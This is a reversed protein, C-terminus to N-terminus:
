CTVSNTKDEGVYIEGGRKAREAPIGFGGKAVAVLMTVDKDSLDDKGTLLLEAIEAKPSQLNKRLATKADTNEAEKRESLAAHLRIAADM